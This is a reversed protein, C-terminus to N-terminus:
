TASHTSYDNKLYLEYEFAGTKLAKRLNGSEFRSEFILTKDIPLSGLSYPPVCKTSVSSTTKAAADGDNLSLVGSESEAVEEVVPKGGERKSQDVRYYPKLKEYYRNL